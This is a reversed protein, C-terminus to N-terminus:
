RLSITVVNATQGDVTLVVPVEGAGILSRPVVLNVQDLGPYQPQAGVYLLSATLGGVTAHANNLSSVNRLGTGYFTLVLQDAPTGLDLPLTTCVSACQFVPEPTIAGNASYIAATAAAVGKGDGNKSYLGPAVADIFAGGTSTGIMVTAVGPATGDPVIFDVQGASVFYIPAVRATGHSDKVSVGVGGLELPYPPTATVSAAALNTGYAAAFSGAGLKPYGSATSASIILSAADSITNAVSTTSVDSPTLVAQMFDTQYQALSECCPPAGYLNVSPALGFGQITNASVQAGTVNELRIASRASNTVRNGTVTINAYSSTAVQSSVNNQSVSYIAAAAFTPGHSVNAYNLASEVINNQITVNSSPGADTLDGSLQQLFIGNSSTRQIYNDHVLVNQVGALWVGRAFVGDQVTNYAIESKAGLKAPDSDVMGFGAAVGPIAHDLTLAVTEGDTFKQQDFAPSESVINVPGIV